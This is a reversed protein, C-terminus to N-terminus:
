CSSSGNLSCRAREWWRRITWEDVAMMRVTEELTLEGYCRYEIAEVWPLQAQKLAAQADLLAVGQPASPTTKHYERRGGPALWGHWRPSAWAGGPTGGGTGPGACKKEAM